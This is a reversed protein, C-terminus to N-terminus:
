FAEGQASSHAHGKKIWYAKVQRDVLGVGLICRRHSKWGADSFIYALEGDQPLEQGKSGTSQDQHASSWLYM